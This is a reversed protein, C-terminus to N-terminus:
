ARETLWVGLLVMAGGAVFSPTLAEAYLWWSAIATLVPQLNSWVAVRSADARALASAYVLWGLVNTVLVLYAVAAWGGPSLTAFTGLDAFALGFPLYLATGVLLAWGTGATPGYKEAMRKGGVAFASWALVAVLVVLDGQLARAGGPALMGRSLLVVATGAFALLIGGVRGGSARESGRLWAILFVFVPTLAYLLAGHGPTTLRMGTLFLLQNACVGLFGLLLVRRWDARQIRVRSRVVLLVYIGAAFAFRALALEIPGLEALGRKAALYTGASIVSHVLM